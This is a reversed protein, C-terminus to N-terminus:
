RARDHYSKWRKSYRVCRLCRTAAGRCCGFIVLILNVTYVFDFRFGFGDSLIMTLSRGGATSCDGTMCRFITFMCSVVSGCYEDGYIYHLKNCPYTANLLPLDKSDGSGCEESLGMPVYTLIFTRLMIAFIYIITGLMVFVWLLSPAGIVLGSIMNVLERLLPTQMLKLLRAVRALRLGRLVLVSRGVGEVSVDAAITAMGLMADAIGMLTLVFDLINWTQDPGLFYVTPSYVLLKTVLEVVFILTISLELLFWPLGDPNRDLSIGLSLFSVLIAATSLYNTFAVWQRGSTAPVELARIKRVHSQRRQRLVRQIREIDRAVRVSAHSALDHRMILRVFANWGIVPSRVQTALAANGQIGYHICRLEFIVEQMDRLNVAEDRRLEGHILVHVLDHAMVVKISSDKVGFLATMHKVQAWQEASFEQNRVDFSKSVTSPPSVDEPPAIGDLIPLHCEGESSWKIGYDLTGGEALACTHRGDISSVTTPAWGGMEIEVALSQSPLRCFSVVNDSGAWEITCHECVVGPQSDPSSVSQTSLSKTQGGVRVVASLSERLKDNVRLNERPADNIGYLTVNLSKTRDSITAETPQSGPQDVNEHNKWDLPIVDDKRDCFQSGIHHGDERNSVIATREADLKAVATQMTLINNEYEQLLQQLLEKFRSSDPLDVVM